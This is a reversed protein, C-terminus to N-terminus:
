ALYFLTRIVMRYLVFHDVSWGFLLGALWGALCVHVDNFTDCFVGEVTEWNKKWGGGDIVSFSGFGHYHPNKEPRVSSSCFFVSVFRFSVFRFQVVDLTNENPRKFLCCEHIWLFMEFFFWFEFLVFFLIVIIVFLCNKTHIFSSVSHHLFFLSIQM